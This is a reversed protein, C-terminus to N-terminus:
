SKMYKIYDMVYKYKMNIDNYLFNNKKYQQFYQNFFPLEILDKDNFKKLINYYLSNRDYTNPGYHKKIHLNSIMRKQNFPAFFCNIHNAIYKFYHGVGTESRITYLLVPYSTFWSDGLGSFVIDYNKYLQLSIYYDKLKYINSMGNLSTIINPYMSLFDSENYTININDSKWLKVFEQQQGRTYTHLCQYESHQLVSLVNRSDRGASLSLLCKKNKAVTQISKVFINISDDPYFDTDITYNYYYLLDKTIKCISGSPLVYWNKWPTIRYRNINFKENKFLLIFNQFFIHQNRPIPFNSTLDIDINKKCLDIYKPEVDLSMDKTFDICVKKEVINYFIPFFGYYDNIWIENDDYIINIAFLGDIYNIANELTYTSFLTVLEEKTYFHYDLSHYPHGYFEINM